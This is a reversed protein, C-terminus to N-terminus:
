LSIPESVCFKADKIGCAAKLEEIFKDTGFSAGVIEFSIAQIEGGASPTYNIVVYHHQKEKTKTGVGSIAGVQAGLPGLLLGGVIGRGIVSKEKEIVESESLLAVNVIQSYQLEVPPFKGIRAKIELKAELMTVNVALGKYFSSIGDIM